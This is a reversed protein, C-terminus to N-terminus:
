SRNEVFRTTKMTWSPKWCRRVEALFIRESFLWLFAFPRVSITTFHTDIKMVYFFFGIWVYLYFFFLRSRNAKFSFFTSPFFPLPSSLLTIIRNSTRLTLSSDQWLHHWTLLFLLAIFPFFFLLSLKNPTFSCCLVVFFFIIYSNRQPLIAVNMANKWVKVLYDLSENSVIICLPRVDFWVCTVYVCVSRM